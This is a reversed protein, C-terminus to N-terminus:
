LNVLAYTIGLPPMAFHLAATFNSLTVNAPTADGIQVSAVADSGFGAYYLPLTVNVTLTANLTNWFMALAAPGGSYWGPPSFHMLGDWSTLNSWQLTVYDNILVSRSFCVIFVHSRKLAVGRLVTECRYKHFFSTWKQFITLAAPGDFLQTAQTCFEFFLTDHAAPQSIHRAAM